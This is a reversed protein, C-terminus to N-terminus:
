LSTLLTGHELLEEWPVENRVMRKLLNTLEQEEDSGSAVYSYFESRNRVRKKLNSDGALEIDNIVITWAVHLSAKISEDDDETTFIRELNRGLRRTRQIKDDLESTVAAAGSPSTPM